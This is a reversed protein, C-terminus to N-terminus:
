NHKKVYQLILFKLLSLLGEQQPIQKSAKNACSEVHTSVSVLSLEQRETCVLKAMSEWVQAQSFQLCSKGGKGRASKYLASSQVQKEIKGLHNQISRYLYIYIPIFFVKIDWSPQIVLLYM